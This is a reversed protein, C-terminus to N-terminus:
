QRAFVFGMTELRIRRDDPLLGRRYSTRQENAWSYLDHAVFVNAHGHEEKFAVLEVYRVDWPDVADRRECYADWGTSVPIPKTPTRSM